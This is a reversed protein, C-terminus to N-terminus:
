SESRPAADEAWSLIAALALAKAKPAYAVFDGEADVLVLCGEPCPGVGARRCTDVEDKYECVSLAAEYTNAVLTTDVVPFRM